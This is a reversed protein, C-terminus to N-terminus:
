EAISVLHIIKPIEKSIETKLTYEQLIKDNNKEIKEKNYGDMQLTMLSRETLALGKELFRKQLNSSTEFDRIFRFFFLIKKKYEEVIKMCIEFYYDEEFNSKRSKFSYGQISSGNFDCFCYSQVESDHILYYFKSSETTLNTLFWKQSLFYPSDESNSLLESVIKKIDDIKYSSKITYHNNM